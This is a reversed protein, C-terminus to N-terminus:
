PRGRAENFIAIFDEPAPKQQPQWVINGAIFQPFSTTGYAETLRLNEQMKKVVNESGMDKNLKELDLGLLKALEAKRPEDLARFDTILADHMEIFKGQEGAAYVFQVYKEGTTDVPVPRIVYRVNGDRKLAERLVPDVSRCKTSTYDCFEVLTVDAEAAGSSYGAPPNHLTMETRIQRFLLYAFIANGLLVLTIFVRFSM